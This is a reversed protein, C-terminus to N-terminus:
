TNKFIIDSLELVLFKQSDSQITYNNQQSKNMTAQKRIQKTIKIQSSMIVLVRDTPFRLGPNFNGEM